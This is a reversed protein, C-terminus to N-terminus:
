PRRLYILYLCPLVSVSEAIRHYLAHLVCTPVRKSRQSLKNRKREMRLFLKWFAYPCTVVVGTSIAVKRKVFSLWVSPYVPDATSAQAVIEFSGPEEGGGKSSLSCFFFCRCNKKAKQVFVAFFFFCFSFNCSWCGMSIYSPSYFPGIM